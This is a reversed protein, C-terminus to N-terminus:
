GTARIGGFHAAESKNLEVKYFADNYGLISGINWRDNNADELVGYENPEGEVLEVQGRNLLATASYQTGGAGDEYEPQRTSRRMVASVATGTDTDPDQTPDWYVCDEVYGLEGNFFTDQELQRLWEDM